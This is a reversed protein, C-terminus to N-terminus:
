SVGLFSQLMMNNILDLGGKLAFDSHLTGGAVQFTTGCRRRTQSTAASVQSGRAALSGPGGMGEPTSAARGGSNPPRHGGSIYGHARKNGCNATTRSPVAHPKNTGGGTSTSAAGARHCSAQSLPKRADDRELAEKEHNWQQFVWEDKEMWGAATMKAITEPMGQARQARSGLETLLLTFLTTRLPKNMEAPQESWTTRWQTSTRLLIPLMCEPQNDNRLTLVFGTDMQIRASHDAQQLTVSALLRIMEQYDESSQQNMKGKGQGKAKGGVRNNKSKNWAAAEVAQSGSPKTLLLALTETLKRKKMEADVAM